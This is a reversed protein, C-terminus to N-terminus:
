SVLEEVEYDRHAFIHFSTMEIDPYTLVFLYELFKAFSCRKLFSRNMYFDKELSHLHVEHLDGISKILCYFELSPM